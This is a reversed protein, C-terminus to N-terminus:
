RMAEICEKHAPNLHLPVKDFTIPKNCLPCSGSGTKTLEGLEHSALHEKWEVINDTEYEGDEHNSCKFTGGDILSAVM